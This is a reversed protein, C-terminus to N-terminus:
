VVLTKYSSSNQTSSDKVSVSVEAASFTVDTLVYLVRTLILNNTVADKVLDLAGVSYPEVKLEAAEQCNFM